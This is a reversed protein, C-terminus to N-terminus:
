ILQIKFFNLLINYTYIIINYIIKKRKRREKEFFKNRQNKKYLKFLQFYIWILYFDENYSNQM